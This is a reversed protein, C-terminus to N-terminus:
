SNEFSTTFRKLELNDCRTVNRQPRKTTWNLSSLYYASYAQTIFNYTHTRKMKSKRVFFRDHSLCM